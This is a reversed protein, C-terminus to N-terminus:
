VGSMTQVLDDHEEQPLQTEFNDNGEFCVHLAITSFKLLNEQNTISIDQNLFYYHINVKM